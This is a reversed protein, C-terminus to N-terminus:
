KKFTRPKSSPTKPAVAKAILKKPIVVPIKPSTESVKTKSKTQHPKPDTPVPIDPVTMFKKFYNELKEKLDSFVDTKNNKYIYVAVAAGIIAGIVLGFIFGGDNQQSDCNKCDCM